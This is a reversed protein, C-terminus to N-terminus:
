MSILLFSHSYNKEKLPLLEPSKHFPRGSEAKMLIIPIQSVGHITM